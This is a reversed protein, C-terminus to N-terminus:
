DMSGNKNDNLHQKFILGTRENLTKGIEDMMTKSHGMFQRQPIKIKSGVKMLAMRKFFEAKASITRNAKNNRAKGSKSLSKTGSHEYYLKWFHMKMFKTVTITGGENHLESYETDSEVIIRSDNNSAVKISQMLTGFHYLTRKGGLPSKTKAWPTFSSDTFGEKVFSEKFFKVSETSAIVSATRRLEKTVQSFDPVPFQNNAM